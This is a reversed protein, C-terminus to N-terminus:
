NLDLMSAVSVNAGGIHSQWCYFMPHMRGVCVFSAQLWIFFFCGPPLLDNQFMVSACLVVLMTDVSLAQLMHFLHFLYGVRHTKCGM